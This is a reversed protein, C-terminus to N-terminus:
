YSYSAVFRNLCTCEFFTSLLMVEFRFLIISTSMTPTVCSCPNHTKCLSNTTSLYNLQYELRSCRQLSGADQEKMQQLDDGIDNEILVCKM